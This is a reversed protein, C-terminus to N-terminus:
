ASRLEAELLEEYIKRPHIPNRLRSEEVVGNMFQVFKPDFYDRQLKWMARFSPNNFTDERWSAVYANWTDSDFTNAKYQYHDHEMRRFVVRCLYYGRLFSATTLESPKTALSILLELDEVSQDQMYRTWGDTTESYTAAKVMTTNQRIQAALYVLTVIVAFSGLFEGVAGLEVISM